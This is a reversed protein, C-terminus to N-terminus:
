WFSMSRFILRGYAAFGVVFTTISFIHGLRLAKPAEEGYSFALAAVIMLVLCSLMGWAIKERSYRHVVLYGATVSVLLFLFPAVVWRVTATATKLAIGVSITSAFKLDGTMENRGHTMYMLFLFSAIVSLIIMLVVGVASVIGLKELDELSSSASRRLPIIIPRNVRKGASPIATNRTKNYSARKKPDSLTEFAKQIEQFKELAEPEQNVDPHYQRVLARYSEGIEEASANWPVGLITYLDDAM